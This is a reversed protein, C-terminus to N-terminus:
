AYATLAQKLREIEKALVAFTEDADTLAGDRGMTELRLAAASAPGAAFCNASGKLSHAVRRLKAADQDKIAQRIDGLLKDCEKSLFLGVMQKLLDSRGGIRTVAADWDLVAEPVPDEAAEEEAAGAPTIGEVTEYLVKSQIPKPIYGDMGAELCRERDGKM